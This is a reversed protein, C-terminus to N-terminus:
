FIIHTKEYGFIASIHHFFAHNSWNNYLKSIEKNIEKYECIRDEINNSLNVKNTIIHYQILGLIFKCFGNALFHWNQRMELPWVPDAISIKEYYNIEQIYGNESLQNITNNKDIQKKIKHITVNEIKFQIGHSSNIDNIKNEAFRYFTWNTNPGYQNILQRITKDIIMLDISKDGKIHIEVVTWM